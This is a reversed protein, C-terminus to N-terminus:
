LGPLSLGCSPSSCRATLVSRETIAGFTHTCCITPNTRQAPRQESVSVGPSGPASTASEEWNLGERPMKSSYLLRRWTHAVETPAAEGWLRHATSPSTDRGQGGCPHLSGMSDALAKRTVADTWRRESLGTEGVGQPSQKGRETKNCYRICFVFNEMKVM